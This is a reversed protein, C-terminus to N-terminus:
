EDPQRVDAACKERTVEAFAVGLLVQERADVCPPCDDGGGEDQRWHGGHGDDEEGDTHAAEPEGRHRECRPEDRVEVTQAVHAREVPDNEEGVLEAREEADPEPPLKVVDVAGIGVNPPDANTDARKAGDNVERDLFFPNERCLGGWICRIIPYSQRNQVCFETSELAINIM